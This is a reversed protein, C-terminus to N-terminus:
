LNFKSKLIEKAIMFIANVSLDIAKNKLGTKIEEWITASRIHDLYQHGEYTISEFRITSVHTSNGIISIEILGAEKLKLATYVIEEKTYAPLYDCVQKLTATEFAVKGSVPSEKLSISEELCILLERICDYDLKM